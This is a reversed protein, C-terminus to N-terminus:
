SNYKTQRNADENLLRQMNPIASNKLRTTRAFNVKFKEPKRLKESQNTTKQPFLGKVRNNSLCKKAFQLCLNERREELSELGLKSM